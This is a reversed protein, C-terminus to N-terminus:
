ASRGDSQIFAPFNHTASKAYDDEALSCNFRSGLHKAWKKCADKQNDLLMAEEGSQVLSSLREIFYDKNTDSYGEFLDEYPVTPRWCAFNLDLTSKIAKTTELFSIDDRDDSVYNKAALITLIIGSPMTGSLEDKWTKYYRVLRKLQGNNDTKQNFWDLIAKPDSVIWGDRKHALRPSDNDPKYYSVLDVHYGETFFIRVCPNKDQPAISTHDEAAECIWRHITEITVDPEENQLIYTGDDVDYDDDKPSIITNMAFSGQWHFKVVYGKDEFKKRIKERLANRSKRLSKKKSEDLKITNNYDKFLNDCDAM